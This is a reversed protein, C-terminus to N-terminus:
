PTAELPSLLLFLDMAVYLASIVFLGAAISVWDIWVLDRQAIAGSLVIVGLAALGINRIVLGWSLQAQRAGFGLCGCDLHANGRVINIGIAFAYITLLASAGGVGARWLDAGPGIAATAAALELLAIAVAAPALFRDPLLQYGALVRKFAPIDRFKHVCALALLLALGLRALWVLLPDISM